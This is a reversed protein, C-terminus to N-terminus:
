VEALKGGGAIIYKAAIECFVEGRHEYNNFMDFSASAPSLLINEYGSMVCGRVADALTRQRTITGWDYPCRAAAAMIKDTTEGIVAIYRVKEPLKDFLADYEYGKDSGGLILAIEGKLANVAKLTSDINTGKSDNYFKKIGSEGVLELRHKIGKFSRLTDAINSNDVGILKAAAVAFLTNYLNHLGLLRVSDASVIEEGDFCIMNNYLYAGRIKNRLSVFYADALINDAKAYHVINIDDANLVIRSSESQNVAIRMKQRSYNEFTKHRDLHDPELNLVLAIEPAFDIISELQFSSTELCVWEDQRLIDAEECFAKGINGLAHSSIGGDKLIQNLLATTTTKGNTGTIAAIKAACNRYGLELEGIVTVGRAMARVLYDETIPVAPSVVIMSLSSLFRDSLRSLRVCEFQECTRAFCSADYVFIKCEPDKRRLLEVAARGSIGYGVVLYRAQM